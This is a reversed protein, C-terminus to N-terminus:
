LENDIFSFLEETSASGLHDTISKDADDDKGTVGALLANVRAPIRTAAIEEPSMAALLTEIRDLESLVRDAGRAAAASAGEAEPTLHQTLHHTLATPTPHDFITTAPLRIATATTLRNRLEVATLSDLGQDLFGRHPDITRPGDLGLVLATHQRILNLIHQHQETDTLGALQEALAPGQPRTTATPRTTALRAWVPHPPIHRANLPAALQVPHGTHHHADFLGFGQETSLPTIAQREMRAIDQDSLHATMGSAQAWLGWALSSAPLGTHHRQAALADLFTNAAAYNAQGPSGLLGAASSFLVFAGLDADRTLEHLYRPM